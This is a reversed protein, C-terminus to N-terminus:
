PSKVEIKNECRFIDATKGSESFYLVSVGLLDRLKLVENKMESLTEGSFSKLPDYMLVADPKVAYARGLEARFLQEDSLIIPKEYLCSEFSFLKACELIIDNKSHENVNLRNLAFLLNRYVTLHSYLTSRQFILATNRASAHINEVNRGGIIIEGRPVKEVGSIMRFLAQGAKKDDSTYVCLSGDDVSFDFCHSDELFLNKIIIQAM